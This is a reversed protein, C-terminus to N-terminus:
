PGCRDNIGHEAGRGGWSITVSSRGLEILSQAEGHFQYGECGKPTPLANNLSTNNNVAVARQPVVSRISPADGSDIISGVGKAPSSDSQGDEFFDNITPQRDMEDDPPQTKTRISPVPQADSLELDAEVPDDDVALEDITNAIPLTDDFLVWMTHQRLTKEIELRDTADIDNGDAYWFEIQVPTDDFIIQGTETVSFEPTPEGMLLKTVSTDLTNGYDEKKLEEGDRLISYSLPTGNYETVVSKRPDYNNRRHFLNELVQRKLRDEIKEKDKGNGNV